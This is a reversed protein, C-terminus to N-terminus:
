MAAHPARTASILRVREPALPRAVFALAQASSRDLWQVDDVLCVLPRQEAADSLLGLVALAVLFRDPQPGSSLGFATALAQRQPEPLRQRKDLLGACLQHLGAYPLEMEWEAGVARLVRCDKARRAAYELLATKGIGAEGRLVLVASRGRQAEALLRDLRACETGRGALAASASRLPPPGM